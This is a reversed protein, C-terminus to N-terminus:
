VYMIFSDTMEGFGKDIWERRWWWLGEVMWM